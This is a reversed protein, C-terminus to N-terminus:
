KIAAIVSSNIRNAKKMRAIIVVMKLKIMVM